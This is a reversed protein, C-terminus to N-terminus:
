SSIRGSKMWPTMSSVLWTAFLTFLVGLVSVVVIAAYMRAPLFLQWSNWILYGLGAGGMLLEAGVMVLVSMGAALRVSIIVSPMTGPVVVHWLMQWRSAGFSRAPDGYNKLTEQAAATIPIDIIFFVSIAILLIQPTENIGFILLLIPFLALKPVVYFALLLPEFAARGIRSIGLLFGTPLGCIVGILFGIVVKRASVSIADLLLGDQAATVGANLISSPAPYFTPDILEVTAAVQWLIVLSIPVGFSLSLDLTRRRRSHRRPDREARGPIRRVVLRPEPRDHRSMDELLKTPETM